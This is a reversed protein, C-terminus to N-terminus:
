PFAPAGEAEAAAPVASDLTIIGALQRRLAAQADELTSHGWTAIELVKMGPNRRGQLAARVRDLQAIDKTLKPQVSAGDEWLCYFVHARQGGADFEYTDFSLTVPGLGFSIAGPNALLQWGSAGLCSEPPHRTVQKVWTRGREWEFFMLLWSSGDAELWSWKEGTNCRLVELTAEAIPLRTVSEAASPPHARWAVSEGLGQEHARYWFEVGVEVAVVWCFLVMPGYSWGALRPFVPHLHETPETPPCKSPQTNPSTVGKIEAAAPPGAGDEIGLMGQKGRARARGAWVAAGWLSLFCGLLITVGAPDHWRAVAEVGQRAAVWTLLATRAINFAFSLGFGLLCLGLRTFVALRYLEGFFLGLMLTAQLSRIGSCADDVGVVGTAVEIVNGHQIAPVGFLDLLLVVLFTNGRTLNQIVADEVPRLWPVSVLFFCIPFAVEKLIGTGWAQRVWLLTLLVVELAHAWTVVRWEPSAEQVLRTPAYGLALVVFLFSSWFDLRGEGGV